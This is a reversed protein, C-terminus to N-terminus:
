SSQMWNLIAGKKLLSLNQLSLAMEFCNAIVPLPFEKLYCILVFLALCSVIFGTGHFTANSRPM